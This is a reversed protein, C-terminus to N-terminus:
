VSIIHYLTARRRRWLTGNQFKESQSVNGLALIDHVNWHLRTYSRGGPSDRLIACCGPTSFWTFILRELWHKESGIIYTVNMLWRAPRYSEAIEVCKFSCRWSGPRCDNRRLSAVSRSPLTIVIAMIMHTLKWGTWPDPQGPWKLCPRTWVNGSGSVRGLKPLTFFDTVSTEAMDRSQCTPWQM